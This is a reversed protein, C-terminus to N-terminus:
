SFYWKNKLKNGLKIKIIQQKYRLMTSQLYPVLELITTCEDYQLGHNERNKPVSARMPPWSKPSPLYAIVEFKPYMQKYMESMNSMYSTSLSM